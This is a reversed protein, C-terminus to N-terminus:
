AGTCWRTKRGTRSGSKALRRDRRHHRDARGLRRPGLDGAAIRRPAPARARARADLRLRLLDGSRSLAAVVTGEIGVASLAHHHRRAGGQERRAVLEIRGLDIGRSEYYRTIKEMAGHLYIPKDYGAKRMLAICASRRASRIPASWIRASPFCRRGFAAAQRDGRRSRRPPVGAPRLDGRHHVRRLAGARVARLDSRRRGQLRGLRRHAPREGRGRDAGLRARPRRSPVDGQRRRADRSEGYRVAQTSGAFNEGYRLRM